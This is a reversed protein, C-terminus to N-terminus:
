WTGRRTEANTIKITFTQNDGVTVVKPNVTKTVSLNASDTPQVWALGGLVMMVVM